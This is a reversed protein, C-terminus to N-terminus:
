ISPPDSNASKKLCQRCICSAGGDSSTAAMLLGAPFREEMCWCRANEAGEAPAEPSGPSPAALACGNPGGCLVCVSPDVAATEGLLSAGGVRRM